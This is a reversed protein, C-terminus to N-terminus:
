PQPSVVGEIRSWKSCPKYFRPKNCDIIFVRGQGYVSLDKNHFSTTSIQSVRQNNWLSPDNLWNVPNRCMYSSLKVPNEGRVGTDYEICYRLNPHKSCFSLHSRSVFGPSFTFCVTDMANNNILDICPVTSSGWAISCVKSCRIYQPICNVPKVMFM